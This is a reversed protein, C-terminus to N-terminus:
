SRVHMVKAIIIRELDAQMQKAQQQEIAPVICNMAFIDDGSQQKTAQPIMSQGYRKYQQWHLQLQSRQDAIKKEHVHLATLAEKKQVDIHELLQLAPKFFLHRLLLYAILFNGMQVFLTLNIEM